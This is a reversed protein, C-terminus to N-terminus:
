IIRMAYMVSGSPQYSNSLSAAFSNREDTSHTVAVSFTRGDEPDSPRDVDSYGISFNYSTAESVRMNYGAFLSNTEAKNGQEPDFDTNRLNILIGSTEDLIYGWSLAVSNDSYDTLSVTDYTVDRLSLNVSFSNRENVQYSFGPSISVTDRSGDRTTGSDLLETETTSQSDLAVKLSGSLREGRRSTDLSLNYTDSDEISSESYANSNAGVTFGLNSIETAGQLNAFVGLTGSTTSTKNSESLRFNDDYGVSVTAGYDNNWDYAAVTHWQVTVASAFIAVIITRRTNRSIHNLSFNCDM